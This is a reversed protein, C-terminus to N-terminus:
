CTLGDQPVTGHVLYDEVARSICNNSRGYATHGEGQYTVLVGSELTSALAQAWKYPTAPDNTTGIVVIPDAGAATIDFEQEAPPFPWDTCEIGSYGFSKGLTPAAAEIEAALAKMKEPDDEARGDACNVARFAEESNSRFTGDSNRENYVDALYLLTDGAGEYFVEELAQTLVGWSAEDYMTVAVGYFALKQTVDRDGSTPIPNDAADEVMARIQKLGTEVDGGLPCDAGAQCDQVYARLANEFGVAQEAAVQDSTLNPDLAGDLVLRGVRDPFLGAYTYGLQTGYSYGLYNLKDDGLAARLMDMDRAASQTDVNGLLAGTNQACAAGWERISQAREALGEDTYPYDKSLFEDKDEDAFCTVPSSQGVGRPDFGVIDFSNRLAQGFSGSEVLSIGSGGPGGPNILLSGVKQGSAPAKKLALEISGAAADHWSLPASATTCQFGGGCDVWELAQSYWSEFGAPAGDAGAVPAEPSVGAGLTTQVKPPAACAALLLVTVLLCAVAAAPKRRAPRIM